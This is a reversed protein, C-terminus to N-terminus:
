HNKKTASVTVMCKMRARFSRKSFKIFLPQECESFSKWTFVLSKIWRHHEVFPEFSCVFSCAFTFAILITCVKHAKKEGNINERHCNYAMITCAPSDAVNKDWEKQCLSWSFFIWNFHFLCALTTLGCSLPQFSASYRCISQM